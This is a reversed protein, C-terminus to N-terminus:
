MGVQSRYYALAAVGMAAVAFLLGSVLLRGVRAASNQAGMGVAFAAVIAVLVFGAGAWLPANSNINNATTNFLDAGGAAAARGASAVLGGIALGRMLWRRLLAKTM